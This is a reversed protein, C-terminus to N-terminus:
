NTSAAHRRPAPPQRRVRCGAEIGPLCQETNKGPGIHAGGQGRQRPRGPKRAPQAPPPMRLVPVMEATAVVLTVVRAVLWILAVVGVITMYDLTDLGCQIRRGIPDQGPFSTRVLAENVIAVMQGGVVVWQDIPVREALQSIANWTARGQPTLRGIEALLDLGKLTQVPATM